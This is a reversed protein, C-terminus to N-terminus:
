NCKSCILISLGKCWYFTGGAEHKVPVLQDYGKNNASTLTACVVSPSETPTPTPSVLIEVLAHISHDYQLPNKLLLSGFGVVENFEEINTGRDIVITNGKAFETQDIVDIESVDKSM